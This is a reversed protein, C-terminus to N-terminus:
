WLPRERTLRRVLRPRNELGGTYLWPGPPAKRALAVLGRPYLRPRVLVAPCRACLDADAFQDLCWPELGARLASFAAARASAGVILLHDNMPRVCPSSGQDSDRM